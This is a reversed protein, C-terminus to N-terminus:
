PRPQVTIPGIEIAYSAPGASVPLRQGTVPHYLGVALQYEGPAIDESLLLGYRDIIVEGTQWTSTPRLWQVPQGDRQALRDGAPDLLHVFVHYNEAIPQLTEWHLALLLPAGPRTEPTFGYGSLRIWGNEATVGATRAPDGFITGLGAEQLTQREASAFMIVRDLEETPTNEERATRFEYLLFDEGRLAREWASQEATAAGSVLWIRAHGTRVDHLWADQQPELGNTDRLGYVPLSGHYVNAFDQTAAPALHLIADADRANEEIRQAIQRVGENRPLAYVTTLVAFAVVVVAAVYPRTASEWVTYTDPSYMDPYSLPYAPHEAAQRDNSPSTRHALRYLLVAGGVLLVILFALTFWLGPTWSEPGTLWFLHFHEPRLFRWQLVLPSYAPTTFTAPAFLPQVAADLWDQALRFPVLTGLLQVGVSLAGLIAVLVRGVTSGSGVIQALAAGTFLSMFPLIPVLFRPGWSYGGHWMYWKGYLLVYAAVIALSFLTIGRARRWLLFVGWLGLLLIPSYWFVGRAPGVLLGSVGFWWVANFRETEVYGSDWINGYRVWNWYLSVFGAVVVPLAFSILPRWGDTWLRRLAGLTAHTAQAATSGTRAPPQTAVAREIVVLLGAVYIPLTVLNVVRALYAVSWALGAAFLYRKRGTQAHALLGYAAAFLGWMCVPDSFFTQTYPLVLTGLGFSLGTLLAITRRWQLRRATLFLLAATWATLIPNLLLATDALGIGPWLRALWILPVALLTMGLGKRSYLEGDAGLNGQQTGMWLLQNSDIEGRRVMSEATAFMALGDSSQITGTYFFLYVVLLLAALAWATARDYAATRETRSDPGLWNTM